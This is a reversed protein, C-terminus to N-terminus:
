RVATEVVSITIYTKGNRETFSALVQKTDKRAVLASQGTVSQQEQIIWGDQRLDQEYAIREEVASKDSEYSQTDQTYRASQLSNTIVANPVAPIDQWSWVDRPAQRKTNQMVQMPTLSEIKEEVIRQYALWGIVCVIGISIALLLAEQKLIRNMGSNYM